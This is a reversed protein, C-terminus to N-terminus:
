LPTRQALRRTIGQYGTPLLRQVLDIVRADAGILVRPRKAIIGEIITAAAAAPTTRAMKDFNSALKDKQQAARGRARAARAINTKIGGPQVCTVAVPVEDMLLEQRLCETLGRVAFKAANYAGQSPVGIMGFVSSVNVVHGDGSDILHPLFAKTGYLVGWFNIGMLWEFDEISLEAVTGTIAVGANNIIINVSGHDAVVQEAWDFVAQRSAVDVRQATVKTGYQSAEKRVSALGDEDVDSLALHCGRQALDLALARGIGSATGTIAVVKSELSSM